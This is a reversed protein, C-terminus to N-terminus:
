GGRHVQGRLEGKPDQQTHVNVYLGGASMKAVLDKVSKGKMPGTLDSATITGEAIDGNSVGELLKGPPQFPYPWVVLEGNEDPSGVHLHAKTVDKLGHVELVYHM